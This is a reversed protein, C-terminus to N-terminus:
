EGRVLAPLRRALSKFLGDIDATTVGPSFEDVL